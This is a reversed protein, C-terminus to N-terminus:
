RSPKSINPSVYGASTERMDKLRYGGDVPLIVGTIYDAAPSVLFAAARGIDAPTGMRGWPLEHGAADIVEDSFTARENPTDIWGPEIANVNVRHAFLEVALSATFHNLAAKAAGYPANRELPLEGCVSSIFLIKGGAGREVQHRAVARSLHFGSKFTADVVRDFDQVSFDLIHGRIGLAPNSILIDVAGAADIADAVLQECQEPDFVDAQITWTRRGLSRIAEATETLSAGGPKDNLIVDAGARALEIACGQGIGRAAGTVLARRGSLDILESSNM